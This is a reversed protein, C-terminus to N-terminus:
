SLKLLFLVCENCTVLPWSKKTRSNDEIDLFTKSFRMRTWQSYRLSYALRVSLCVSLGSPPFM